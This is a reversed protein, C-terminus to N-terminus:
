GMNAPRARRSSEAGQEITERLHRRQRYSGCDELGGYLDCRLDPFPWVVSWRRLVRRLLAERFRQRRGMASNRALSIWHNLDLYRLKPPRTLAGSTNSGLTYTTHRLRRWQRRLRPHRTTTRAWRAHLTVGGGSSGRGENQARKAVADLTSGTTFADDLVM